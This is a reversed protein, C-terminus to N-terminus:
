IVSRKEWNAIIRNVEDVTYAKNEKLLVSLLDKRDKFKESTLFANKGYRSTTTKEKASVEPYVEFDVDKDEKSM